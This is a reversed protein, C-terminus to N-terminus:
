VSIYNIKILLVSRQGRRRSVKELVAKEKLIKQELDQEDAFAKAIMEKIQIANQKKLDIFQEQLKKLDNDKKRRQFEAEKVTKYLDQEKEDDRQVLKQFHKLNDEHSKLKLETLKHNAKVKFLGESQENKAIRESLLKTQLSAKRNSIDEIKKDIEYAKREQDAIQATENLNRQRQYINELNNRADVIRRNAERQRVSWFSKEQDNELSLRRRTM